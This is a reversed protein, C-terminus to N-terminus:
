LDAAFYAGLARRLWTMDSTGCMERASHMSLLPIGVDVTPIGLRTASIPGITSGCPMRNDSVFEQYPVDAALCARVFLAATAGDTAYRAKANYKIVPGHGLAPHHESDHAEPYNPHMAHAADASVCSSRAFMQRTREADAGLAAATRGLVEELLPGAAGTTTSSGVEEHDFSVCVLVDTGDTAAGPARGDVADFLAEFGAFTSSLNDLRGVALFESLAGFVEGRQADATILDHGVIRPDAVGAAALQEGILELVDMRGDGHSFVPQVHREADIKKGDNAQRDLHIALSPVRLLPGTRVLHESGDACVVRGALELERDFWTALLPGGYVEMHAQSWGERGLAPRPKLKLGPSDTHAGVIRFGSSSPSAGAPVWWAVVAGGRVLFHGGPEASWDATEDQERFGQAELRRAMEAAAHYSSPSEAIYDILGTADRDVDDGLRAIASAPSSDPAYTM